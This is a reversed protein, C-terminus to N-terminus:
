LEGPEPRNDTRITKNDDKNIYSLIEKIGYNRKTIYFLKIGHKECLEKKKKDRENLLKFYDIGGFRKVPTFHQEGQVEIGIKKYPIYFDLFLHRKYKLWPFTKQREHRIGNESLLLHINM